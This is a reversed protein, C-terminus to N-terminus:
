DITLQLKTVSSRPLTVLAAGDFLKAMLPSPIVADPNEFTNHAHMDNATLVIATVDNVKAGRLRIQTDPSAEIAPNVVTLTIRNGKKSASGNLGWFEASKDDRMYRVNSSMFETRLGQGNFHDAYMAFVHYNPTKLFKDEHALFLANINNILQANTALNIKEANRNFVDLTLATALADRITVQQGFFHTLDVETGERYWPGYEDVVLKVQHASDYEGMASWQDRLVQEVGACVRMLEYWDVENFQLADGKAQIWDTTRGRSLNAAYYHISWGTFSSPHYSHPNAYIQEFFRHTWDLDNNNPGSGVFQLDVGYNPVWSTFRRFESAYEEPTFNGGCGWSENGVGWYRVKFPERFGAAERMKALTTSGAPSNCYEVWHDFSLPPLSRVNAAVYPQAGVLSCFQMFENTGFRNSEFVQDGKEHLRAADSDVEWFNTRLPRKAVEGIGDFWDYSDAFCGGPWRIIPAGINKLADILDARIGNKNRIKSGEGVWVGDYIVGGIHETFHGYLNPAISAHSEDLIVEIHADVERAWLDRGCLAFAAGSLAAHKAFQRRNVKM